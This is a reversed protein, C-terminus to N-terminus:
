SRRRQRREKQSRPCLCCRGIYMPFWISTQVRRKGSLKDGAHQSNGWAFRVKWLTPSDEHWWPRISIHCVSGDIAVFTIGLICEIQLIVRRKGACGIYFGSWGFRISWGHSGSNWWCRCCWRWIWGGDASNDTTNDTAECYNSEYDKADEEVAPLLGRIYRWNFLDDAWGCLWWMLWWMLWAKSWWWYVISLSAVRSPQRSTGTRARWCIVRSTYVILVHGRSRRLRFMDTIYLNSIFWLLYRSGIWHAHTIVAGLQVSAPCESYKVANHHWKWSCTLAHM